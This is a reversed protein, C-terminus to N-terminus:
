LEFYENGNENLITTTSEYCLLKMFSKGRFYKNTIRKLSESFLLKFHESRYYYLECFIIDFINSDTIKIKM